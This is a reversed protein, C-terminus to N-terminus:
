SLWMWIAGIPLAFLLLILLILLMFLLYSQISGQQFIRGNALINQLRKWSPVLVDHLVPDDVHSHLEAPGAFAGSIHPSHRRLRLLPRLIGLLMQALSSATYQMRSSTRAYGCAWTPGSTAPRALARQILFGVLVIAILSLNMLTLAKLPILNGLPPMPQHAWHLIVRNLMPAVLGPAVGIVICGAALVMMPLWMAPGSEHGHRYARRATGLFVTGYAKTFCAAALAGVMVLIVAAFALLMLKSLTHLLGMYIFWESVFGNLPPMGCIAVAGILFFVATIPMSKALGGLVDIERTRASHVVSGGSFFLLSKFLGHNWVHLLCGGLGLVVWIPHHYKEGILALGLGMLIIGINEVSHYALLKKLDHQGIAWLVGLFASIAGLAMVLLGWGLPRAPFLPLVRLLGFIGMKIAVGSLTASVHSPSNAHAEPLWFHMPMMGAKIGFAVLALLFLATQMGVGVQGPALPRLLFSGSVIRLMIFMVVLLLTSVHTAILYVWAAQRSAPKQDETAILFFSGLAVLEWTILFCISNASLVLLAMGAILIGYWFRLKRGTRPHRSQRWYELGYISSLAGILFIPVLFFAGLPGLRLNVAMAPAPGPATLSESPAGTLIGFAAVLGCLSALVAVIASLRHSWNGRRDGAMGIIGSAAFAAICPLIITLWM